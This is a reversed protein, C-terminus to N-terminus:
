RDISIVESARAVVAPPVDVGIRQATALNVRLRHQRVHRVPIDGASAGDLILGILTPLEPVTQLLSTGYAMLGDHQWGSPFMTPLRHEIALMAISQFDMLNVPVELVQLAQARGYVMSQFATARDPTPGKIRVWHPELGLSRAATENSRELPNWGGPRPIEVDSLIAVRDLDPVVEKLLVLQEIALDPDYNTVGTMNGGPRDVASAFGAEVPDLVISYVIPIRHTARQAARAGVAGIAVILDVKRAVLDEAFGTTRELVGEAFRPELAITEGDVYGHKALSGVFANFLADRGRNLIVGVSPMPGPM